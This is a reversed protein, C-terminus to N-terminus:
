RARARPLVAERRPDYRGPDALALAPVLVQLAAMPTAGDPILRAVAAADVGLDAATWRAEIEDDTEPVGGGWLLEAM